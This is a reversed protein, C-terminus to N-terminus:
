IWRRVKSKYTLFEPGFLQQLHAEERAIIGYHMYALVLPLLALMWGTNAIFGVGLFGLTLAVYLPNRSWRFAAHTILANVPGYNPDINRSKMTHWTWTFLAAGLLVLTGGPLTVWPGPFLRLPEWTALAVGAALGLAYVFPSRVRVTLRPSVTDVPSIGHPPSAHPM